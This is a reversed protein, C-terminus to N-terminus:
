QAQALTLRMEVRRNRQRGEPDDSGDSKTNAAAPRTEGYGKATLLSPDIGESILYNVVTEARGQSLSLNAADNGVNDTHASIEIAFEPNERLVPLISRQIAEISSPTLDVSGFDFLIDEIRIDKETIESMGFNHYTTDSVTLGVTSFDIHNRFYGDKQIEVRYDKDEELDFFYTGVEDTVTRKMLTEEGNEDILFLSANARDLVRSNMSTNFDLEEGKGQFYLSDDVEMVFGGVGLAVKEPFEFSFIDDCCYAHLLQDTKSRNSV